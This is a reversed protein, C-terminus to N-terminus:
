ASTECNDTLGSLQRRNSCMRSSFCSFDTQRDTQRDTLELARVQCVWLHWSKACTSLGGLLHFRVNWFETCLGKQYPQWGFHGFNEFGWTYQPKDTQAHLFKFGQQGFLTLLTEFHGCLGGITCSVLSFIFFVMGFFVCCFVTEVLWLVENAALVTAFVVVKYHNLISRTSAATTGETVCPMKVRHHSSGIQKWTLSCQWDTLRHTCFSSVSNVLCPSCRRLIVASVGSQAAVERPPPSAM